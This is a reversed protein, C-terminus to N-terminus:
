TNLNSGVYVPEFGLRPVCDVNPPATEHAAVSLPECISWLEALVDLLVRAFEGYAIAAISCKLPTM